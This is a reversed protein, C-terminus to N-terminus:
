IWGKMLIDSNQFCNNKGIAISNFLVLIIHGRVM